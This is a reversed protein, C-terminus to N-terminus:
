FDLQKDNKKTFYATIKTVPNCSEIESVGYPWYRNLPTREECFCNEEFEDVPPFITAWDDKM